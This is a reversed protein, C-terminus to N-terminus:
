LECFCAALTALFYLARRAGQNHFYPARPWLLLRKAGPGQNNGARLESFVVPVELGGYAVLLDSKSIDRFSRMHHVVTFNYFKLLM